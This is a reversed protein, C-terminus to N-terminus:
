LLTDFMLGRQHGGAIVGRVRSCLKLLSRMKGEDSVANTREVGVNLCVVNGTDLRGAEGVRTEVLWEVLGGKVAFARECARVRM